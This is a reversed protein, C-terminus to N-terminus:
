FGWREAYTLGRPTGLIEALLIAQRQSTRNSLLSQITTTARATPVSTEHSSFAAALQRERATRSPTPLSPKPAEEELSAFEEEERPTALTPSSFERPFVPAPPAAEPPLGLAEMLEQFSDRQPQSKRAAPVPPPQTYINRQSKKREGRVVDRKTKAAERKENSKQVAWNVMSLLGIIALVVLQEM